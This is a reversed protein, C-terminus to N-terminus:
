HQYKVLEQLIWDHTEEFKVHAVLIIYGRGLTVLCPMSM